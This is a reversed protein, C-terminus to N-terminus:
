FVIKALAVARGKLAGGEGYRPRAYNHGLIDARVRDDIGAALLRDEVAHRMGYVTHRDSELLGRNRFAKNIASSWASERDDYRTCGGRAVIRKAAELSVGLLPVDRVAAASKLQRGGRKTIALHPVPDALRWDELRANIVESPRAGTNVTVLFIDVLEDNLGDFAGPRLLTSAIWKESFPPRREGGQDRFHQGAFPCEGKRRKRDLGASRAIERWIGALHEFRKNASNPAIEGASIRAGLARRFADVQAPTISNWAVPGASAEWERLTYLRPTKWRQAQAPSKPDLADASAELFFAWCGAETMMMAAEPATGMLADAEARSPVGQAFLAELRDALDTFPGTAIETLARYPFGRAQALERAAREYAFADQAAGAALAEWRAMWAAVVQPEKATAEAKSDTHLCERVQTRRDIHAFRKPVRKVAYWGGRDFTIGM